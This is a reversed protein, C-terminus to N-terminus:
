SSCGDSGHTDDSMSYTESQGVRGEGYSDNQVDHGVVGDDAAQNIQDSM